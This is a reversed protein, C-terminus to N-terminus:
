KIFDLDELRLKWKYMDELEGWKEVWDKIKVYWDLYVKEKMFISWENVVSTDIIWKKMRLITNFVWEIRKEPYLFKV